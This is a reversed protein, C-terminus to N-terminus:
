VELSEPGRRKSRGLMLLLGLGAVALTAPEPVSQGTIPPLDPTATAVATIAGSGGLNVRIQDFTTNDTLNLWQYSNDGLEAADMTLVVDGLHILEISTNHGDDIDLLGIGAKHQPMEFLFDIYGARRGAEDDPNDVLGDNNNDRVNEALILVNGFNTVNTPHYGPTALDPDGGTPNESDFALVYDPGSFNVGVIDVGYGTYADELFQGGEIANGDADFDFDMMIHEGFAVSGILVGLAAAVIQWKFLRLDM